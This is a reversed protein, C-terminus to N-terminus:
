FQLPGNLCLSLWPSLSFQSQHKDTIRQNRDKQNQNLEKIKKAKMQQSHAKFTWESM